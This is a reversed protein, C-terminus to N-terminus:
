NFKKRLIKKFPIFGYRSWAINAPYNQEDVYLEVYSIGKSKFWSIAANELKRGIQKQQFNKDVVLYSIHGVKKTRFWPYLNKIFGSVFGLVFTNEQAIFLFQNPDNKLQNLWSTFLDSFNDEILYYQPDFEAHLDFLQRGLKILLPFDSSVAARIHM